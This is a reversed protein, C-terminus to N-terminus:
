KGTLNDEIKRTLRSFRSKSDDRYDSFEKELQIYKSAMKLCAMMAIKSAPVTGKPFHTGDEIQERVLSLIAAMEKEDAATYFSFEQGLLEFRVLREDDAM